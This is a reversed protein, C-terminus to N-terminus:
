FRMRKHGAMIPAKKRESRKRAMGQQSWNQVKNKLKKLGFLVYYDGVRFSGGKTGTSQPTAGNCSTALTM